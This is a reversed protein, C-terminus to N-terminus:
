ASIIKADEININTKCISNDSGTIIEKSIINLDNIIESFGFTKRWKIQELKDKPFTKIIDACIIPDIGYEKEKAQYVMEKWNFKTNKSIVWIDVIDKPEYRFLASIKNSLINQLCDVNSYLNSKIIKGFREPIDNVFDIKLLTDEKEIFCQGFDDSLIIKNKLFFIKEKECYKKIVDITKKFENLFDSNANMFFDLDDSYRHNFYARSIATGGTLYFRTHLKNM